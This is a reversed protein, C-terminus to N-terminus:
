GTTPTGHFCDAAGRTVADFSEFAPVLEGAGFVKITLRGDTAEGVSKAFREAGTGQGPFNKPWTTVMRWEIKGQAIAPTALTAAGAAAGAAAGKILARRKMSM